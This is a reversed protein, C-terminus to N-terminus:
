KLMKLLNKVKDTQIFDPNKNIADIHDSESHTNWVAVMLNNEHATKVQEKTIDRNSITIGTLNLGLAIEFGEQFSAPYIFLKYGPKLQKLLTLFVESQSEIYVNNELQYKEIIAVLANIFDTYFLITDINTTLLKCDFTFRFAQRNETHSFLQELSIVKYKLYLTQTYHTNEIEAWSKSNVLGHLTTSGSLDQDHYAVLVGDSTMQVDMESGDMGLNLCNSISEFSDMPYIKGIGMGGHGLAIIKNGNLNVIDFEDKKCSILNFLLLFLLIAKKM